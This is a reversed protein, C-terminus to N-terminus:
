LGKEDLERMEQMLKKHVAEALQKLPEVLHNFFVKEYGKVSFSTGPGFQVNQYELDNHAFLQNRIDEIEKHASKLKEPIGNQKLKLGKKLHEGRNDSFPRIYSVIADRFLAEKIYEDDSIEIKEISRKVREMDISSLYKFVYKEQEPTMAARIILILRGFHRLM